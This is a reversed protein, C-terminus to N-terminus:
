FGSKATTASVGVFGTVSSANRHLFVNKKNQRGRRDILVSVAAAAITERAVFARMKLRYKSVSTVTYRVRQM